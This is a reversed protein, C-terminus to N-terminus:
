AGLAACGATPCAGAATVQHLPCVRISAIDMATEEALVVRWYQENPPLGGYGRNMDMSPFWGGAEDGSLMNIVIDEMELQILPIRREVFRSVNRWVRPPIDRKFIKSNGVYICTKEICALRDREEEYLHGGIKGLIDQPLKPFMYELLESVCNDINKCLGKFLLRNCTGVYPLLPRTAARAPAPSAVARTRPHRSHRPPACRLCTRTEEEVCYASM